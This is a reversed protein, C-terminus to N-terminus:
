KSVVTFCADSKEQHLVLMFYQVLVQIVQMNEILGEALLEHTHDLHTQEDWEEM